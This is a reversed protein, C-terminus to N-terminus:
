TGEGKGERGGGRGTPRARSSIVCRVASRCVLTNKIDLTEDSERPRKQSLPLLISSFRYFRGKLDINTSAKQTVQIRCLSTSYCFVRHSQRFCLTPIRKWSTRTYTKTTWCGFLYNPIHNLLQLATWKKGDSSRVHFNEKGELSRRKIRGCFLFFFTSLPFQRPGHVALPFKGTM